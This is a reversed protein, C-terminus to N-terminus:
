KWRPGRVWAVLSRRTGKTIETVRHTLYSPFVLVSGQQRFQEPPPSQVEAFEFNCGEYDYGDSLQVVISLKRDYNKDNLWDVDHHWDYKGNYQEDYETFQIQDIAQTIDVNFCSGNLKNVGRLLIDEIDPEDLLWRIKSNRIDSTGSFVTASEEKVASARRVVEDCFDSDFASVLLQWNDRM